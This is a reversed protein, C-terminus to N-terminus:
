NKEVDKLANNGYFHECFYGYTTGKQLNVLCGM